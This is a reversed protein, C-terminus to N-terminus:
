PVARLANLRALAERAFPRDPFHELDSDLDRQLAIEDHQSAACAARGAAGARRDFKM